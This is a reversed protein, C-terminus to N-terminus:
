KSLRYALIHPEPEHVLTYLIRNERDITIGFASAEFHLKRILKGEGSFVHIENAYTASSQKDEEKGCFLGYIYEDDMAASLYGLPTNSDIRDGDTKYDMEKVVYDWAPVIDRRDAHFVSFVEAIYIINAITKRDPSVFTKGHHAMAHITNPVSAAPKPRYDCVHRENELSSDLIAFRGKGSLDTAAFASDLRILETYRSGEPLNLTSVPVANTGQAFLSDYSYIRYKKSAPDFVGITTESLNENVININSIHLYEHPGNGQKAFSFLLSDKKVDIVKIFGDEGYLDMVFLKNDYFEAFLPLGMYVSLSDVSSLNVVPIDDDKGSFTCSSIIFSFLISLVPIKMSFSWKKSYIKLDTM